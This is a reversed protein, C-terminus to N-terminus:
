YRGEGASQRRDAVCSSDLYWRTGEFHHAPGDDRWYQHRLKVSSRVSTKMDPTAISFTCNARNRETGTFACRLNSLRYEPTPTHNTLAGEEDYEPRYDPASVQDHIACSLSLEESGPLDCAPPNDRYYQSQRHDKAAYFGCREIPRSAALSEGPQVPGCATSLVLPGLILLGARGPM